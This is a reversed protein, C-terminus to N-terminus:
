CGHYLDFLRVQYCYRDVTLYADTLLCTATSYRGDKLHVKQAASDVKVVAGQNGFRTNKPKLTNSVAIWIGGTGGNAPFRFTSNPGWNGAVKELVVNRILQKVNPAAVREGVWTANM